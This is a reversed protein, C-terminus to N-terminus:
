SQDRLRRARAPSNLHCVLQQRAQRAGIRSQELRMELGDVQGDTLLQLGAVSTDFADIEGVSADSGHHGIVVDRDLDAHDAAIAHRADGHQEAIVFAGLM